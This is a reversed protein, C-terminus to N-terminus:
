IILEVCDYYLEENELEKIKNLVNEIKNLREGRKKLRYRQAYEKRKKKYEEDNKMENYRERKQKNIDDKNKNYYKDIANRTYVPTIYEREKEKEVTANYMKAYRERREEADSDDPNYINM